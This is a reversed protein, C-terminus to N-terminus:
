EIGNLGNHAQHHDREENGTNRVKEHHHLLLPHFGRQVHDREYEGKSNQYATDHVPDQPRQFYHQLAPSGIPSPSYILDDMTLALM